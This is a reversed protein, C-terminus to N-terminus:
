WKRYSYTNLKHKIQFAIGICKGPFQWKRYSHMKRAYQTKVIGGKKNLKSESKLANVQSNCNGPTNDKAIKGPFQWKRAYQTKVIEESKM